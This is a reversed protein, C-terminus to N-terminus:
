YLFDAESVINMTYRIIENFYVDPKGDNYKPFDRDYQKLLNVVNNRIGERESLSKGSMYGIINTITDVTYERLCNKSPNEKITKLNFIRFCYINSVYKEANNWLMCAQESTTNIDSLVEFVPRIYEDVFSETFNVMSRAFNINLKGNPKDTNSEVANIANGKAWKKSITLYDNFFPALFCGHIHHTVLISMIIFQWYMKSCEMNFLTNPTFMSGCKTGFSYVKGNNYKSHNKVIEIVSVANILSNINMRHSQTDPEFKNSVVDYPLLKEGDTKINLFVASVNSIDSFIRDVFRSAYYKPDLNSFDYDESHVKEDYEKLRRINEENKKFEDNLNYEQFFETFQEFSKLASKIEFINLVKIKNEVYDYYIEPSPLPILHTFETSPGSIVSFRTVTLYKPSYMSELPIFTSATGGGRYGGCNIIIVQKGSPINEYLKAFDADAHYIEGLWPKGYIGKLINLNMDINSCGLSLIDPNPYKQALSNTFNFKTIDNISINDFVIEPEKGFIIKYYKNYMDQFTKRRKDDNSDIAFDLVRLHIKENEPLINRFMGLCATFTIATASLFGEGGWANIITEM